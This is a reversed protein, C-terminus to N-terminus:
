APNLEVIHHALDATAVEDCRMQQWAMRMGGTTNGPRRVRTNGGRRVERLSCYVRSGFRVITRMPVNYCIPVSRVTPNFISVPLSAHSIFRSVRSMLYSVDHHVDLQFYQIDSASVRMDRMCRGCSTSNCTHNGSDHMKPHIRIKADYRPM